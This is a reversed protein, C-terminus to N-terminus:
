TTSIMLLVETNGLIIVIIELRIINKITIILVLSKKAYIADEQLVHAKKEEKTLPIMQKKGHNIIKTVHEGSDVCPKQHM